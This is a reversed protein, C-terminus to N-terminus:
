LVGGGTDDHKMLHFLSRNIYESTQAQITALSDELVLFYYRGQYEIRYRNAEETPYLSSIYTDNSHMNDKAVLYGPAKKPTVKKRNLILLYYDEKLLKSGVRKYEGDLNGLKVM